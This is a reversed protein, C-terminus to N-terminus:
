SGLQDILDKLLSDVSSLVRASANYANQYVIMKSMEEDQSVSSISSRQNGAQLLLTNQTDYNGSATDGTTALWSVLSQYFNTGTMSLGNYSFIKENQLTSIETAIAADSSEGSTGAAIKDVDASIDSNLQINGLELPKNADTKVFLAVGASGDLDTGGELLSNVNTAITSMLDNLGQRLTALASNGDVTFDYTDSGAIASFVSQDAEELNAKISGSSINATNGLEAWIVQEATGDEVYKLSHTTAGQVLSVGDIGVNLAGNSQETVCINALASMKDLLEDRQDRLNCAESGSTEALTIQKNLVAVQNALDNLSYVGDKVRNGADQQMAALQTNIENFTDVLAAAYEVVASRTSQSSPDKTLQEWSDFFNQITQQLGNESSSSSSGYENLLKQADEVIGNKTNYYETKGNVQRYTQDLFCDRVRYIEAVGVGSCNSATGSAASAVKEASAIQQRSYGTTSINSLNNSVVALSAQSVYMGTTAINYANFTAGM